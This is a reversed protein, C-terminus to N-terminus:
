MRCRCLIELPTLGAQDTSNTTLVDLCRYVFLAISYMKVKLAIVEFISEYVTMSSMM